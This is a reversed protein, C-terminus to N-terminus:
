RKIKKNKYVIIAAKSKESSILRAILYMTSPIMTARAAYTIGLFDNFTSSTTTIANVAAAVKLTSSTNMGLIPTVAREPTPPATPTPSAPPRGITAIYDFLNNYFYLLSM